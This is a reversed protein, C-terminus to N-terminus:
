GRPRGGTARQRARYAAVNERNACRDSCYRGSLNRSTDVFADDCTDSACVKLREHGFSAVVAALGMAAAAALRRALGAGVPAYHFHWDGDHDTLAPRVEASAILRNLLTAVRQPDDHDAADFVERLRRGLDNVQRVDAATPQRGPLVDHAALLEKLEGVREIRANALDAALAAAADAYHSFKM